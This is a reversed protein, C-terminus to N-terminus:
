TLFRKRVVDQPVQEAFTEDLIVEALAGQLVNQAQTEAQKEYLALVDDRQQLAQIPARQNEWDQIEMSDCGLRKALESQSWGMRLRLNKIKEGNWQM